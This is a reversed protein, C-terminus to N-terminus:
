PLSARESGVTKDYCVVTAHFVRLLPPLTLAPPRFLRAVDAVVDPPIAAAVPM